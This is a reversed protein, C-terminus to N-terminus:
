RKNKADPMESNKDTEKGGEGPAKKPKARSPKKPYSKKKPAAPPKKKTTSTQVQLDEGFFIKIQNNSM